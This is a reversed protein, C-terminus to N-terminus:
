RQGKKRSDNECAQTYSYAILTFFKFFLKFSM